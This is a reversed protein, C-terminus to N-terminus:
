MKKLLVRALSKSSTENGKGDITVSVHILDKGTWISMQGIRAIYYAKKGLGSVSQKDPFYKMSNELSTESGMGKAVTLGTYYSAGSIDFYYSCRPYPREDSEPQIHTAKPFVDLLIENTFLDCASSESNTTEGKLIDKTIQEAEKSQNKVDQKCSLIALMCFAWLSFVNYTKM